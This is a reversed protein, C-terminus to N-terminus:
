APALEDRLVLDDRLPVRVVLGLGRGELGPMLSLSGTLAAVRDRLGALGRQGGMGGAAEERPGAGDDRVEVRIARPGDLAVTVEVRDPRGHRVANSLGERVVRYITERLDGGTQDVEEALNVDITLDPRHRRWFAALLEIATELGGDHIPRLQGLLARVHAQAQGAADRVSRAHGPIDASQGATALHEITAATMTVAFLLPGVEDHLDHAIGAREAAQLTLLRENLRRNQAEMEALQGSMLNFGRALHRVESPGHEAIRPSYDGGGIRGFANAIQELPRLARAVIASILLAVALGFGAFALLFDVSASWVESVENRSDARLLITGAPAPIRQEALDARLLWLFWGPAPHLPRYLESKAIAVGAADLLRARVHRSGDFPALLHRSLDAPDARSSRAVADHVARVGLDLAVQVETRVSRAAHLSMMAGGCALSASLVLVISAILRARLSM